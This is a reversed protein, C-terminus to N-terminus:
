LGSRRLSASTWMYRRIKRPVITTTMSRSRSNPTAQDSQLALNAIFHLDYTMLWSSSVTWRFELRSGRTARRRQIEVPGFHLRHWGSPGALNETCAPNTPPALRHGFLRLASWGSRRSARAHFRSRLADSCLHRPVPRQEIALRGLRCRCFWARSPARRRPRRVSDATTKPTQV